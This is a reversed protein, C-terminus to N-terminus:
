RKQLNLLPLIRSMASGNHAFAWKKEIFYESLWGDPNATPHTERFYTEFYPYDGVSLIKANGFHLVNEKQFILLRMKKLSYKDETAAIINDPGSNKLTEVFDQLAPSYAVVCLDDKLLIYLTYKCGYGKLFRDREASCLFYAGHELKLIDTCCFHSYYQITRKHIDSSNLIM